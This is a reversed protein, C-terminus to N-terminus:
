MNASHGRALKYATIISDLETIRDALAKAYLSPSSKSSGEVAGTRSYQYDESVFSSTRPEHLVLQLSPLANDSRMYASIIWDLETSRDALAEAHLSPGSPHSSSAVSQSTTAGADLAVACSPLPVYSDALDTHSSSPSGLSDDLGSDSFRVADDRLASRRITIRRGGATSMSNGTTPRMAGFVGTVTSSNHEYSGPHLSSQPTFPSAPSQTWPGHSIHSSERADSDIYSIGYFHVARNVAPSGPPPKKRRDHSSLRHMTAPMITASGVLKGIALSAATPARSCSKSGLTSSHARNSSTLTPTLQPMHVTAATNLQADIFAIRDPQNMTGAAALVDVLEEMRAPLLLQVILPNVLSSALTGLGTYANNAGLDAVAPRSPILFSVDFVAFFVARMLLVLVLLKASENMFSMMQIGLLHQLTAMPRDGQAHLKQVASVATATSYPDRARTRRVVLSVRVIVWCLPAAFLLAFGSTVLRVTSRANGTDTMNKFAAFHTAVVAAWGLAGLGLLARGAAASMLPNPDLLRRLPRAVWIAAACGLAFVQFAAGLDWLLLGTKIMPLQQADAPTVDQNLYVAARCLSVDQLEQQAMLGDKVLFLVTAALCSFYGLMTVLGKGRTSRGQRLVSVPNIQSWDRTELVRLLMYLAAVGDVLAFQLYSLGSINM